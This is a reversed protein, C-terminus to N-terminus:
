KKALKWLLNFYNEYSEALEKSEILIAIPDDTWMFVAVKNEYIITSSFNNFQKELFRIEQLRKRPIQKRVHESTIIKMPIKLKIRQSEWIEFHLPKFFPFGKTAGLDLVEKPKTNLIDKFVTNIGLIGKFVHVEQKKKSSRYLEELNLFLKKAEKIEKEKNEILKKIIKPSAAEFYKKNVKVISAVLGKEQLRELTDYVNVRHVDAKKSIQNVSASGLKLLAIYVKAENKSLGLQELLWSEM